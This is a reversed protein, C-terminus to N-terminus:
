SWVSLCIEANMSWRGIRYRSTDLEMLVEMRVLEEGKNKNSSRYYCIHEGAETPSVLHACFDQNTPQALFMKKWSADPRDFKWLYGRKIRLNLFGSEQRIPTGYHMLFPNWRPENAGFEAIEKDVGGSSLPGPMM